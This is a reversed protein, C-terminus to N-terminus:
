VHHRYFDWRGDRAIIGEHPLLRHRFALVAQAVYGDPKQRKLVVIFARMAFGLAAGSLSGALLAFHGAGFLPWTVLTVVALAVFGAAISLILETGNLGAAMEPQFSVLRASPLRDSPTTDAM